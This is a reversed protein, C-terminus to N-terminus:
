TLVAPQRSQVRPTTHPRRSPSRSRLAYLCLLVSTSLPVIHLFLMLGGYLEMQKDLKSLDKDFFAQNSSAFPVLRTVLKSLTLCSYVM